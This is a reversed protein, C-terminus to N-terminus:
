SPEDVEIYRSPTYSILANSSPVPPGVANSVVIFM